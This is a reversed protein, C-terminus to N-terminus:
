LSNTYIDFHSSLFSTKGYFKNTRGKLCIRAYVKFLVTLSKIAGAARKDEDSIEDVDAAVASTVSSVVAVIVAFLIILLGGALLFFTGDM